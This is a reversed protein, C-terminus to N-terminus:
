RQYWRYVSLLNKYIEWDIAMNIDPVIKKSRGGSPQHETCKGDKIRVVLRGQIDEIPITTCEATLARYASLQLFHEKKLRGTKWDVITLGPRGRLKGLFDYKGAVLYTDSHVVKEVAVVEEVNKAFWEKFAEMDTKYKKKIKPSKGLCIKDCYGHIVSGYNAAKTGIRKTEKKGVRAEWVKLWPISVIGLPTTVSVFKKGSEDLYYRTGKEDIVKM